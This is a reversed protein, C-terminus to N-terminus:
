AAKKDGKASHVFIPFLPRTPTGLEQLKKRHRFWVRSYHYFPLFPILHHINHYNQYRCWGLMPATLLPTDVEGALCRARVSAGPDAAPNHRWGSVHCQDM